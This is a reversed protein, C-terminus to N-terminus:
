MRQKMCFYKVGCTANAVFSAITFRACITNSFTLAHSFPFDCFTIYFQESVFFNSCKLISKDAFYCISFLAFKLLNASKRHKPSFPLFVICFYFFSRRRNIKRFFLSLKNASVKLHKLHSLYLHFTLTSISQSKINQFM